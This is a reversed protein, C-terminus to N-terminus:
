KQTVLQEFLRGYECAIKEARFAQSRARGNEILKQRLSDDRLVRLIANALASPDAPPVLLGSRENEIIESPGYPCDTAVVPAGCAMAEVIVNGFGEWVSSLVFVNAVAMYKFPNSQFGLFRVFERIGLEDARAELREREKGEGLICLHALPISKRTEAFAELLFAFGKQKTLRGCALIIIQGAVKEGVPLAEMLGKALHEDVGANYITEMRDQISPVLQRVDEAVGHSLAVVRDALPYLRPIASLILKGGLKRLYRYHISPPIQICVVTRPRQLLMRASLLAVCNAHDMVSCLIDPAEQHLLDRLPYIAKIMNLLKSRGPRRTLMRIKVDSALAAEYTGGSRTLAVSLSFTRRDLHNVLRLLQREAGGGGLSSTFFLLRIKHDL